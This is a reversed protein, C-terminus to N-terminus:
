VKVSLSVPLPGVPEAEKTHLLPLRSIRVLGAGVQTAGGGGVHGLM